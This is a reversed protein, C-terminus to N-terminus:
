LLSLTCKILFINQCGQYECVGVCGGRVPRRHAHQAQGGTSHDDELGLPRADGPTCNLLCKLVAKVLVKVRAKGWLWFLLGLRTRLGQRLKRGLELRLNWIDRSDCGQCFADCWGWGSSASPAACSQTFASPPTMINREEHVM